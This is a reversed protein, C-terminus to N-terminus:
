ENLRSIAKEFEEKNLYATKDTQQREAVITQHWEPVNYTGSLESQVEKLRALIATDKLSAIWNILQIKELAIDGESM